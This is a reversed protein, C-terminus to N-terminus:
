LISKRSTLRQGRAGTLYYACFPILRFDPAAVHICCRRLRDLEINWVDQFAMGSICLSYNRIRDIMPDKPNELAIPNEPAISTESIKSVGAVGDVGVIGVIGATEAIEPANVGANIEPKDSMSYKWHRRVYAISKEAADSGRASIWDIHTAPVLRGDENLVALASFSCRPDECASPIFNEITLEGGTQSEIEALIDPVLIRDENRPSRPYRGLYTMPQFHVGKVTPMRRKAFELIAGIQLENVNRVLTPVLIVAIRLEAATSVAADKLSFLDRGRIKRYVEDDVGDFQLFFDTVGADRLSKAYAFDEAIRLGNTNIQIHGFGLARARRIIEPLDDRMTPEGGSLQIPCDGASQRINKLIQDIQDINPDPACKEPVAAFCVSCRLNCRATVEIIASCTRQRHKPCIGCDYPCNVDPAATSGTSEALEALEATPAEGCNCSSSCCTGARPKTWVSFSVRNNRWILVKEIEGHEPCNRHLYVDNGEVIRRASVRRLCHPCISECVSEQISVANSMNTNILNSTERFLRFIQRATEEITLSSTDITMDAQAYFPARDLLLARVRAEPDETNLLPRDVGSGARRLITPIDATLAVVVGCNKLNAMNRPNVVTGGGTSVVTGTLNMVREVMRSELERFAPEGREAFIRPISVGEEAEIASDLDIFEYGLLEALKKGVSSKGTAMFGCLVVNVKENMVAM